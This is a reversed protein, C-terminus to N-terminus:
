EQRAATTFLSLVHEMEKQDPSVAWLAAALAHPDINLERWFEAENMAHQLRHEEPCLPLTWRDDPKRQLGPNRAGASANSFRIHAVHVGRREIGFRIATAVCFLSAIAAKHARSLQRGRASSKAVPASKPSRKRVRRMMARYASAQKRERKTLQLSM